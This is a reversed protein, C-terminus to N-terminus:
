LETKGSKKKSDISGWDELILAAGKEGIMISPANTNAGVLRPMISADIVRLGELGKVKLRPDVVTSADKLSGMRCTGVPHYVTAAYQNNLCRWYNDSFPEHSKCNITDPKLPEFGHKKFTKTDKLNYIYKMGEILTKMDIDEPDSFYNVNIEPYDRFDASSLRITGVSKPRLLTPMFHFAFRKGEYGRYWDNYFDDGFGFANKVGLGYDIDFSFPISHFQIDPRKKDRNLKTHIMGNTGLSNDALPGNGTFIFNALKAPNAVNFPSTLLSSDNTTFAVVNM